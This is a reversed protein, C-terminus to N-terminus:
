KGIRRWNWSSGRSSSAAGARPPGMTEGGASAGASSGLQQQPAGQQPQYQQQSGAGAAAAPLAVHGGASPFTGSTGPGPSALSESALREQAAAEAGHQAHKAAQQAQQAAQLAAAEEAIRKIRAAAITEGGRAASHVVRVIDSLRQEADAVIKDWATAHYLAGGCYAVAASRPALLPTLALPGPYLSSVM